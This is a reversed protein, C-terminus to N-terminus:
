FFMSTVTDRPPPPSQLPPSKALPPPPLCPRGTKGKGVPPPPSPHSLRLFSLVMATPAPGSTQGVCCSALRRM